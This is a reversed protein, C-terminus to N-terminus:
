QAVEELRKLYLEKFGIEKKILEPLVDSTKKPTATFKGESIESFYEDMETDNYSNLPVQRAEEICVNSIINRYGICFQM